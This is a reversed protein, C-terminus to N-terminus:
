PQANWRGGRGPGQFQGAMGPCTGPGYGNAQMQQWRQAMWDAQEQTLKGDAVAQEVAKSRIEVMLAQFDESSKGQAEAISWMTEGNNLKDQLDTVRIGLAEAFGQLMYEHMPGYSGNSGMMGQGRNGMMGSGRGIGQGTCGGLGFAPCTGAPTATQAYAYGAVGLAVVLVALIATVVLIKKM